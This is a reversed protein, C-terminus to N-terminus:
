EKLAWEKLDHWMYEVIEATSLGGEELLIKFLKDSAGYLGPPCDEGEVNTAVSGGEIAHYAARETWPGQPVYDAEWRLKNALDYGPDDCWEQVLDLQGAVPASLDDPQVRRVLSLLARVLIHRPFSRALRRFWERPQDPLQERERGLASLAGKDNLFAALELRDPSLDGVRIREKLYHGADVGRMKLLKLYRFGDTDRRTAQWRSEADLVEDDAM